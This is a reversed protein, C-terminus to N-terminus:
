DILLLLRNCSQFTRYMFLLYFSKSIDMLFTFPDLDNFLEMTSQHVATLCQVNIQITPLNTPSNFQTSYTSSYLDLLEFDLYRAIM